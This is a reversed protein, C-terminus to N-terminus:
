KIHMKFAKWEGPELSLKKVCLASAKIVKEFYLTSYIEKNELFLALIAIEIENLM